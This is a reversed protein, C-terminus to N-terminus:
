KSFITALDAYYTAIWGKIIEVETKRQKVLWSPDTTKNARLIDLCHSGNITHIALLSDSLNELVGGISYPDKLGNSFIINSGFRQLILKIDHGGYYTTIWHPRPPVGYSDECQKIYANLNFPAPQFMTNNNRGMPIVLESCTQWRWGVASESVIQPQNVYCPRNGIYSVVGAFIKDLTDSGVSAGDIGACVQNLPYKPPRNYQAAVSYMYELYDKLESPGKLPKCTHFKGSLMSIGNSKAAIKDIESWSKRISQYCNESVERFDKTVITDYGDEPTINDFYLIPASSALAGLAIHPYKLRFWSALMGGYSGGIVIVPAKEAKLIKKVHLIVDAYDAIAQASNFYGLTGANKLAEDWSGFPISKGYYRHEIYLQLAKFQIANESLFGIINLDSDLPAEAGFYVLIPASSKSGGWYKSNIVYRQQFTTYSEPNYNFHDLTQTYYFTNYDTSLPSSLWSFSTELEHDVTLGAGTPSLRPIKIKFETASASNSLTLLFILLQSSFLLFNM